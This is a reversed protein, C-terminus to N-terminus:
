RTAAPALDVEFFFLAKNTLMFTLDPVYFRANSLWDYHRDIDFYFFGHLTARPAIVDSTIASSRLVGAFEDWDKGKGTKVGVGPITPFRRQTPDKPGKLLVRDAVEDPSM